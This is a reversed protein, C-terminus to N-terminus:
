PSGLLVLVEKGLEDRIYEYVDNVADRYAREPRMLKYWMKLSGSVIRYRFKAELEYHEGGEIVQIGLKISEPIRLEGRQGAGAESEESYLFQTNGDQLRTAQNFEVKTKCRLTTCIELMQAGIPEVIDQLHDEIFEAFETQSMVKESDGEWSLFEPTKKCKLFARHNCWDATSPGHYDIIGRISGEEIDCFVATNELRYKKIYAIFSDPNSSRFSSVTKTPREMLNSLEEIHHNSPIIAIPCEGVKIIEPKSERGAEFAAQFDSPISELNTETM